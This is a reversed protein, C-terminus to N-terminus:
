HGKLLYVDIQDGVQKLPFDAALKTITKIYIDVNNQDLRHEGNKMWNLILSNIRPHFHTTDRYNALDDLFSETEFGYVHVNRHHSSERTVIRILNVYNSFSQPDERYMMAFSLRSIPAFFLYFETGAYINALSILKDHFIRMDRITDEEHLTTVYLKRASGDIKRISDAISKLSSIVRPDNKAEFWKTLGGFRSSYDRNSHWEVLNELNDRRTRCLVDSFISIGCFMHRLPKLTLTYIFLDNLRNNDYLYSYSNIPAHKLDTYLGNKDLSFIVNYIPRKTLAYKLILTRELFGSGDLSINIFSRGFTKSAESSSFNASTSNGLILSDFSKETNILGASEIRMSTDNVYYNDRVWPKHFIRYPDHIFLLTTMSALPLLWFLNLYFIYRRM